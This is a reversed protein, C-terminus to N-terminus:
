AALISKLELGLDDVLDVMAMFSDETAFMASLRSLTDNTNM